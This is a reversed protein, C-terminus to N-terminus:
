PRGSGVHKLRELADLRERQPLRAAETRFTQELKARERPDNTTPLKTMLRDLQDIIPKLELQKRALAMRSGFEHIERAAREAGLQPTMAEIAATGRRFDAETITGRARAEAEVRALHTALDQETALAPVEVSTPPADVPVTPPRRAIEGRAGVPPIELPADSPPARTLKYLMGGAVLAAVAGGALLIQGRSAVAREYRPTRGARFPSIANAAPANLGATRADGM